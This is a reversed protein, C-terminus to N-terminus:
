SGLVLATLAVANNVAHAVISVWLSRTRRFSLALVSAGALLPLFAAVNAHVLAFLSSSYLLGRVWGKREVMARFVFGRFFIEEAFPAFFAGALLIAAKGVPGAGEVPFQQAQNQHVGLAALALSVSGAALMFLLGYGLGRLIPHSVEPTGLGLARWTTVGRRVLLLYVAGLLVADSVVIALFLVKPVALFGTPDTADLDRPFLLGALVFSVASGVITSGLLTALVVPWSGYRALSTSTAVAPAPPPLLDNM